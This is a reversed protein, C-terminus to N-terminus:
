PQVSYAIRGKGAAKVSYMLEDASKIMEDIALRPNRFTVAGISFTVDWGGRRMAARLLESLKDLVTRASEPTAQPLLIGFEDGGLRAALDLRRINRRLEAAVTTLLNDGTEHDFADNIHKFNDIDIYALTMPVRNRLARERELSLAEHFARRNALGTLFDSRSRERERLYLSKVEYLLFVAGLYLGLNILGNVYVMTADSHHRVISLVLWLAASFLAMIFGVSMPRFFWSFYSIPLLYFVSFTIQPSTFYDLLTIAATLAVGFLGRFFRSRRQLAETFNFKM